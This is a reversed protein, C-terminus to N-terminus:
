RGCQAVYQRRQLREKRPLLMPMFILRAASQMAMARMKGRASGGSVRMAGRRMVRQASAYASMTRDSM